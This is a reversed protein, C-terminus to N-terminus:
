DSFEHDPAVSVDALIEKLERSEPSCRSLNVRLGAASVLRWEVLGQLLKSHM